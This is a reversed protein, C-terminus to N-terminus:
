GSKKPRFQKVAQLFKEINKSDNKYRNEIYYQNIKQIDTAYQPLLHILKKNLDLPGESSYIPINLKKLKEKFSFYAEEVPSRKVRKPWILWIVIGIFISLCIGLLIVLTIYQNKGELGLKKLLNRQQEFNYNVIWKDWSHNISDFWGKAQQLAFSSGSPSLFDRIKAPNFDGSQFGDKENLKMLAFLADMGFEIREPAVFATPDARIWGANDTWIENWAHASSYRIEYFDGNPNYDGGQFGVVIRTPINLWRMLTSFTSSYHECYGSRTNFLFDEIPQTSDVEPPILHYTFPQEKFYKLATLALQRTQTSNPIIKQESLQPLNAQQLWSNLLERTKKGPKLTTQTYQTREPQSLRKQNNNSASPKLSSTATYRFTGSKSKTKVSNNDLILGKKTHIVPFM